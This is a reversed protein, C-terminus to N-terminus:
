AEPAPAEEPEPADTPFFIASFLYPRAGPVPTPHGRSALETRLAETLEAHEDATLWTVGQRYGVGDAYPDADDRDLYTDFEALLTAMATAFGRRHEDRSMSAGADPAIVVRDRRVRFHREVAGRVRHEAAVELVGGDVLLGIHRYVTTKPIDPLRACVEATTHTREGTLVHVIRMRVPHLLLDLADM